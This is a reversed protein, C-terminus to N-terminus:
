ITKKANNQGVDHIKFKGIVKSCTQDCRGLFLCRFFFDPSKKGLDKPTQVAHKNKEFKLLFM